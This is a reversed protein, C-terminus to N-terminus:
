SIDLWVLLHVPYTAQSGLILTATLRAWIDIDRSDLTLCSSSSAVPTVLTNLGFVPSVVLDQPQSVGTQM